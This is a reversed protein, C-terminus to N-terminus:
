LMPKFCLLQCCQVYCIISLLWLSGTKTEKMGLACKSVGKMVTLIKFSASHTISKGWLSSGREAWLDM